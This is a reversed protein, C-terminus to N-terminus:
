PYVENNLTLRTRVHDLKNTLDGTAVVKYEQCIGILQSGTATAAEGYGDEASVCIPDGVVYTGAIVSVNAEGDQIVGIMGGSTITGDQGYTDSNAIGFPVSGTATTRAVRPDTATTNDVLLVLGERDLGAGAATLKFDKVEGPFHVIAM